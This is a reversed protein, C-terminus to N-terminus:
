KKMQSSSAKNDTDASQSPVNGEFENRLTEASTCATKVKEFTDRLYEADKGRASDDKIFDGGKIAPFKGMRDRTKSLMELTKNLGERTTMEAM